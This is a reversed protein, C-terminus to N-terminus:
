TRDTFSVVPERDIAKGWPAFAAAILRRDAARVRDFLSVEVPATTTLLRRRWTGVVKGDLVVTHRFVGNRGPDVHTAKAPDLVLSRDRYGLLHEDFGALVLVRPVSGGFDMAEVDALQEQTALLEGDQSHGEVRVTVLEDAMASFARRCQTKTLKTWHQLDEVSAPARAALYRRGLRALAEEPPLRDATPVHEDALVLLNDGDRTPGLLATGTQCAYWVAHYRRQSESFDLGAARYAAVLDDRSAARGGRLTAVTVERVTDAFSRDIGLNQWRKHVGRMAVPGCLDLLWRSDAAALAHVTGRMPWTRVLDGADFAALVDDLTAGHHALRSAIAWRMAAFDQAQMALHHAVVDAATTLRPAGPAEPALGLRVLRLARAQAVSVTRHEVV